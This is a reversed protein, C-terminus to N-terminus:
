HKVTTDQTLDQMSQQKLATIPEIQFHSEENWKRGEEDSTALMANETSFPKRKIEKILLCYERKCLFAHLFMIPRQRQDLVFLDEAM